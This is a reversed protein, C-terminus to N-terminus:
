KKGKKLVWFQMTIKTHEMKIRRKSGLLEDSASHGKTNNFDDDYFYTTQRWRESRDRFAWIWYDKKTEKTKYKCCYFTAPDVESDLCMSCLANSCNNCCKTVVPDLMEDNWRFSSGTLMYTPTYDEKNIGVVEFEKGKFKEMGDVFKLSPKYSKGVVLDDRVRVKDGVKFKM